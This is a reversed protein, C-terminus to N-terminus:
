HHILLEGKDSLSECLKAELDMFNLGLASAVAAPGDLLLTDPAEPLGQSAQQQPSAGRSGGELHNEPM